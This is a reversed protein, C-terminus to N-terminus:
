CFGILTIKYIYLLYYNTDNLILNVFLCVFQSMHEM